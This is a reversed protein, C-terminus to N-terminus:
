NEKIKKSVKLSVSVTLITYSIVMSSEGLNKKKSVNQFMRNIYIKNQELIQFHIVSIM